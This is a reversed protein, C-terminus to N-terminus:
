GARHHRDTGLQPRLSPQTWRLLVGARARRQHALDYQSSADQFWVSAIPPEPGDTM